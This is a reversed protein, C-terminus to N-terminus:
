KTIATTSIVRLVANGVALATALVAYVNAPILASLQGLSAELALLATMVINFVLTKSKYWPKSTAM